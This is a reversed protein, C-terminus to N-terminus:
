RRKKQLFTNVIASDIVKGQGLHVGHPPSPPIPASVNVGLSIAEAESIPHYKFWSTQSIRHTGTPGLVFDTAVNESEYMNDDWSFVESRPVKGVADVTPDLNVYTISFEGHSDGDLRYILLTNLLNAATPPVYFSCVYGEEYNYSLFQKTVLLLSDFGPIKAWFESWLIGREDFYQYSVSGDLPLFPTQSYGPGTTFVTGNTFYFGHYGFLAGFKEEWVDRHIV